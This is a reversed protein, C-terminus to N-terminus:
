NQFGSVIKVFFQTDNGWLRDLRCVEYITGMLRYGEITALCRSPLFTVEAIFVCAFISSDYFADNEIRDM